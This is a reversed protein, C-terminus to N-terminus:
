NSRVFIFLLFINSPNFPKDDNQHSFVIIYKNKYDEMIIKMYNIFFHKHEERDRYPVVFIYEPIFSIDNNDNLTDSM